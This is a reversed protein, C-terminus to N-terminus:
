AELLQPASPTQVKADAAVKPAAEADTLDSTPEDLGPDLDLTKPLPGIKQLIDVPMIERMTSVPQVKFHSSLTPLPPPTFFPPPTSTMPSATLPPVPLPLPLPLPVPQPVPAPTTLSAPVPIPAPTPHYGSYNQSGLVPIPQSAPAPATMAPPPGRLYHPLVHHLPPPPHRTFFEQLLAEAQAPPPPPRHRMFSPMPLHGLKVLMAMYKPDFHPPPAPHTPRLIRERSKIVLGKAVDCHYYRFVPKKQVLVAKSATAPKPAMPRPPVPLALLQERAQQERALQAAARQQNQRVKQELLQVVVKRDEKDSEYNPLVMDVFNVRKRKPKSNDELPVEPQVPAVIALPEVTAVMSPVIELVNGKQVAVSSMPMSAIPMVPTMSSMPAMPLERLVPMAAGAAGVPEVLAGNYDYNMPAVAATASGAYEGSYHAYAEEMSYAPDMYAYGDYHEGSAAAEQQQMLTMNYYYEAAEMSQNEVFYDAFSQSHPSRSRSRSPSRTRPRRRPPSRSRSSSWSRRMPPSPPKFPLPSRSYCRDRSFSRRRNPPPPSRPGAFLKGGGPPSLSSRRRRMMAPKVNRNRRHLPSRSRTRSRSISRSHRGMSGMRGKVFRGRRLPPSTLPRRRRPSPSRTIDKSRSPRVHRRFHNRSLSRSRSRERTRSRKLSHPPHQQHSSPPHHSSNHSRSVSLPSPPLPKSHRTDMITPKVIAIEKHPKVLKPETPAPQTTTEPEDKDFIAPKRASLKLPSITLKIAERNANFINNVPSAIAAVQPPTEVARSQEVQQEEDGAATPPKLESKRYKNMIANRQTIFLSEMKLLEECIDDGSDYNERMMQIRALNDELSQLKRLDRSVNNKKYNLQQKGPMSEETASSQSQSQSQDTSEMSLLQKQEEQENKNTQEEDEASSAEADDDEDDEEEEDDDDDSSSASSSSGSSSSSTGDDTGDSSSEEATSNSLSSNTTATTTTATTALNATNESAASSAETSSNGGMKISKMFKDYLDHINILPKDPVTTAVGEGTAAEAVVSTQQLKARPPPTSKANWLTNSDDDDGNLRAVITSAANKPTSSDGGATSDDNEWNDIYDDTDPSHADATVALPKALPPPENAVRAGNRVPADRERDREREKERKMEWEIEREVDRPPPTLNREVKIQRATLLPPTRSRNKEQKISRERYKNDRERDRERSSNRYSGNRQMSRRGETLVTERKFPNAHRPKERPQEEEVHEQKIHLVEVVKKTRHEHSKRLLQEKTALLADLHLDNDELLAGIRSHIESHMKLQPTTSKSPEPPTASKNVHRNDLPPTTSRELSVVPTPTLTRVPSAEKNLRPPSEAFIDFAKRTEVVNTPARPPTLPQQQEKEQEQVNQVVAPLTQQQIEPQPTVAATAVTPPPPTSPTRVKIEAKRSKSRSRRTERETRERSKEKSVNSSTEHRREQERHRENSKETPKSRGRSRERARQHNETRERSRPTKQRPEKSRERRKERHNSRERRRSSKGADPNSALSSRSRQQAREKSRERREAREKSRERQKEMHEKPLEKNAKEKSRSRRDRPGCDRHQKNGCNKVLKFIFSMSPKTTTWLLESRSRMGSQGPGQNPPLAPGYTSGAAANPSTTGQPGNCTTSSSLTSLVSNNPTICRNPAPPRSFFPSRMGRMGGRPMRPRFPGMRGFDFCQPPPRMHFRLPNIGIFNSHHPAPSPQQSQSSASSSPTSTSAAAAEAQKEQRALQVDKVDQSDSDTDSYLGESDDADAETSTTECTASGNPQTQNATAEKRRIAELELLARVNEEGSNANDNDIQSTLKRLSKNMVDKALVKKLAPSANGQQQQHPPTVLEGPELERSNDGDQMEEALAVGGEGGGGVAEGGGIILSM